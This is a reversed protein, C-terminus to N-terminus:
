SKCQKQAGEQPRAYTKAKPKIKRFLFDSKLFDRQAILPPVSFREM